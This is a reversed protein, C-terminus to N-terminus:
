ILTVVQTKYINSYNTIKSKILQIISLRVYDRNSKKLGIKPTIWEFLFGDLEEELLEKQFQVTPGPPYSFLYYSSSFSIILM